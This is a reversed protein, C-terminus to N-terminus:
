PGDARWALSAHEEGGPLRAGAPADCAFAVVDVWAGPLV